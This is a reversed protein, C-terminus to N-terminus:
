WNSEIIECNSTEFQDQTKLIMFKQRGDKLEPKWCSAEADFYLPAIRFFFDTDAKQWKEFMDPESFSNMVNLYVLEHRNNVRFYNRLQLEPNAFFYINKRSVDILFCMFVRCFSGNCDAISMPVVYYAHWDFYFMYLQDTDLAFGNLDGEFDTNGALVSDIEMRNIRAIKAKLSLTDRRLFVSNKFVEEYLSLGSDRLTYNLKEPPLPNNSYLGELIDDFSRQQQARACFPITIICFLLCLIRIIKL